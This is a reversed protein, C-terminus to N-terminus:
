LTKSKSTTKRTTTKKVPTTPSPNAIEVVKEEKKIPQEKPVFLGIDRGM